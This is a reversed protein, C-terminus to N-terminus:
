YYLESFVHFGALGFMVVTTAIHLTLWGRMIRQLFLEANMKNVRLAYEAARQFARHEHPKLGRLSQEQSQQFAPLEEALTSRRRYFRWM